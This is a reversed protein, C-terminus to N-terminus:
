FGVAQGDRRADSAAVYAETKPSGACWIFRGAGFDQAKKMDMLKARCALCADDLMQAPTVAMASPEPLMNASMAFALKMAEIQLHQSDVGEVPLGAVEFKALSGLAVLGAM